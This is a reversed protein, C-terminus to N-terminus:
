LTMKTHTLYIQVASVVVM